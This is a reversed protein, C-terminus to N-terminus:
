NTSINSHKNHKNKIVFGFIMYFFEVHLGNTHAKLILRADGVIIGFGLNPTM